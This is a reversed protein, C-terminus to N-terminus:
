HMNNSSWKKVTGCYLVLSVRSLSNGACKMGPKLKIDRTQHFPCCQNEINFKKMSHMNTHVTNSM